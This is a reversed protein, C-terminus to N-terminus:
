EDYPSRPLSRLLQMPEYKQPRQSARFRVDPRVSRILTTVGTEPDYSARRGDQTRYLQIPPLRSDQAGHWTNPMGRYERAGDGPLLELRSGRPRIPRAPMQRLSRLGPHETRLREMRDYMALLEGDTMQSHRPRSDQSPQKQVPKGGGKLASKLGRAEPMNRKRNM